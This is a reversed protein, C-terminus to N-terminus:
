PTPTALRSRPLPVRAGKRSNCGLHAAALNALDDTGGLHAPILHDVTTAGPLHCLYCVGADRELVLLRTRRWPRGTLAERGSM